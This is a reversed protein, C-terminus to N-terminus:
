SYSFSPLNVCRCRRQRSHTASTIIYPVDDPYTLLCHSLSLMIIHSGLQCARVFAPSVCMTPAHGAEGDIANSSGMISTHTIISEYALTTPSHPRRHLYSSSYYGLAVLVCWIVMKSVSPPQDSYYRHGASHSGYSSHSSM